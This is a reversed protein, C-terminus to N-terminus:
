AITIGTAAANILEAVVTVPNVATNGSDDITVQITFTNPDGVAGSIASVGYALTLTTGAATTAIQALDLTAAAAAANVGTKRSVVVMGEACRASEYVSNAALFTLKIAAAHNANPVTVTFVDFATNDAVSSATKIIKRASTAAAAVGGLMYGASAVQGATSGAAGTGIGFVGASIRSIGTDTASDNGTASSIGYVSDRRIRVSNTSLNLELNGGQWLAVNDSNYISLGSTLAGAATYTPGLNNVPTVVQGAQDVNFVESTGSAGSQLSLLKGTGTGQTVNIVAAINSSTGDTWTQSISLARPANTAATGATIAPGAGATGDQFIKTSNSPAIRV